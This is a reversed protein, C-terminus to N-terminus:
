RRCANAKVGVYSIIQCTKKNDAIGAEIIAYRCARKDEVLAVEVTTYSIGLQACSKQTPLARM